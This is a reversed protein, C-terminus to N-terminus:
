QCKTVRFKVCDDKVCEYNILTFAYQGCGSTAREGSSVRSCSSITSKNFKFTQEQYMQDSIQNVLQITIEGHFPWVLKDDYEGRMLYVCVHMYDMGFFFGQYEVCLCM